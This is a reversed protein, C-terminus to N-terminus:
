LIICLAFFPALNFVFILLKYQAMLKYHISDFQKPDIKFWKSHIEYMWRKAFMFLVFWLLLVCYNIISSIGLMECIMQGDM